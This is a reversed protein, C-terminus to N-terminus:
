DRNNEIWDLRQGCKDCCHLEDDVFKYCDDNPCIFNYSDGIKEDMPIPKKPKQKELAKIALSYAMIADINIDACFSKRIKLTRIANRIENRLM